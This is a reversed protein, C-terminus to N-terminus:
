TRLEHSVTALFEEKARNAAEAEARASKESALLQVLADERTVRETVDNIVTITGIVQDDEILPAIRASQQMQKFPVDGDEPPMPLLHGHLRQSLIRVQGALADRYYEDLRRGVLDPYAELLNRGMMEAASLGSHIELWHNWSQINLEADTILIGQASLDNFWRLAAEKLRMANGRVPENSHGVGEVM